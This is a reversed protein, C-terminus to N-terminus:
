VQYSTGRVMGVERSARIWSRRQSVAASTWSTRAAVGGARRWQGVTVSSCSPPAMAIAARQSGYAAAGRSATRELKWSNTAVPLARRMSLAADNVQRFHMTRLSEGGLRGGHEDDLMVIGCRSERLAASRRCSATRRPAAFLRCLRAKRNARAHQEQLSAGLSVIWVHHVGDAPCAGYAFYAARAPRPEHTTDRSYLRDQSALATQPTYNLSNPTL